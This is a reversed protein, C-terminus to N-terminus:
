LSAGVQDVVSNWIRRKSSQSLWNLTRHRSNSFLCWFMTYWQIFPQYQVVFFLRFEAHYYISCINEAVESSQQKKWIGNNLFFNVSGKVFFICRGPRVVGIPTIIWSNWNNIMLCVHGHLWRTLTTCTEITCYMWYFCRNFNINYIDACYIM